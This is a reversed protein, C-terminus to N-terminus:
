ARACASLMMTQIPRLAGSGLSESVSADSIQLSVRATCLPAGVLWTVNLVIRESTQNFQLIRRPGCFGLSAGRRAREKRIQNSILPRLLAKIYYLSSPITCHARAGPWYVALRSNLRVLAIIRERYCLAAKWVTQVTLPALLGRIYIYICICICICMCICIYMYM